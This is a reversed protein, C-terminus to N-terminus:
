ATAAKDLSTSQGPTGTAPPTPSADHSRASSGTATRRTRWTRTRLRWRARYDFWCLAHWTLCRRPVIRRVILCDLGYGAAQGIGLSPIGHDQDHHYLHHYSGTATRRTGWTRTPLRWPARDLPVLVLRPLHHLITPSMVRALRPSVVPPWCLARCPSVGGDSIM